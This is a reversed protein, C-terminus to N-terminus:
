YTELTLVCKPVGDFNFLKVFQALTELNSKDPRGLYDGIVAKSLNSSTYFFKAMAESTLPKPLFGHELTISIIGQFYPIGKKASQNFLDAGKLFTAKRDKNLLLQNPTYNSNPDSDQPISNNSSSRREALCRLFVIIGDFALNQHATM